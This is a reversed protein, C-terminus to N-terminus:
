AKRVLVKDSDEVGLKKRMKLNLRIIDKGSDERWAVKAECTLSNRGRIEIQDGEEVGLKERIDKNIRAFDKEVDITRAKKVELMIEEAKQSPPKRHGKGLLHSLEERELIGQLFSEDPDEIGLSTLLEERSREDGKMERGFDLGESDITFYHWKTDHNAGEMKYVRLAKKVEDGGEVKFEIVGDVLTELRLTLDETISTPIWTLLIDSKMTDVKRCLFEVAKLITDHEIGVSAQTLSDLVILSPHTRALSESIKIGAIDPLRSQESIFILALKDEDLYKGIDSDFMRHTERIEDTVTEPAIYICGEGSALTELIVQQAFVSKGCGPPGSVLVSSHPPM